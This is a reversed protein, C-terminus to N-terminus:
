TAVAGRELQRLWDDADSRSRLSQERVIQRQRPTLQADGVGSVFVEQYLDIGGPLELPVGRYLTV